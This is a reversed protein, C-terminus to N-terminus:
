DREFRALEDLERTARRLSCGAMGDIMRGLTGSAPPRDAFRRALWVTLLMGVAGVALSVRIAHGAHREKSQRGIM